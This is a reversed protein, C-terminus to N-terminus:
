LGLNLISAFLLTITLNDDLYIKKSLVEIIASFFIAMLLYINIKLDSSLKINNENLIISFLIENSIEYESYYISFILSFYYSALCYEQPYYSNIAGEPLVCNFKEFFKELIPIDDNDSTILKVGKIIEKKNEEFFTLNVCNLTTIPTLIEFLERFNDYISNVDNYISEITFEQDRSIFIMSLHAHEIAIYDENSLKFFDKLSLDSKIMKIRSLLREYINETYNDVNFKSTFYESLKVIIEKDINQLSINYSEKALDYTFDEEDNKINEMAYTWYKVFRSNYKEKSLSLM